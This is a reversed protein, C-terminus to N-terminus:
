VYPHNEVARGERGCRHEHETNQLFPFPHAQVYPHNEVVGGEGGATVNLLVCCEMELCM